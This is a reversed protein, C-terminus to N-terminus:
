NVLAWWQYYNIFMVFVYCPLIDLRKVATLIAMMFWVPILSCVTLSHATLWKCQYQCVLVVLLISCTCFVFWHLGCFPGLLCCYLVSLFGLSHSLVNETAGGVSYTNLIQIFRFNGSHLRDSYCWKPMRSSLSVIQMFLVNTKFWQLWTSRKSFFYKTLFNTVNRMCLLQLNKECM